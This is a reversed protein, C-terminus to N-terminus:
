LCTFLLFFHKKQKTINKSEQKKNTSNLMDTSQVIFIEKKNTELISYM